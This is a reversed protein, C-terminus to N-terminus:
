MQALMRPRAGHQGADLCGKVCRGVACVCIRAPIAALVERIRRLPVDSRIVEVVDVLESVAVLRLLEEPRIVESLMEFMAM